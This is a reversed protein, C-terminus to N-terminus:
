NSLASMANTAEAAVGPSGNNGEAFREIISPMPVNRKAQKATSPNKATSQSNSRVRREANSMAAAQQKATAPAAQTTTM